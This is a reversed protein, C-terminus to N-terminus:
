QVNINQLVFRIDKIYRGMPNVIDRKEKVFELATEDDMGHKRCLYYIVFSASRSSGVKCHVLINNDDNSYKEQLEIIKQYTPELHERISCDPHDYLPVNIYEFQEYGEFHNSVDVAVNVFCKINLKNIMYWSGANVSSGLYINDIIHTPKKYIKIIEKIKGNPEYIRENPDNNIFTDTKINYDSFTDNITCKEIQQPYVYDYINDCGVKLSATVMDYIGSM